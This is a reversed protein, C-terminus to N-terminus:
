DIKGDDHLIQDTYGPWWNDPVKMSLGKLSKAWEIDIAMTTVMTNNSEKTETTNNQQKFLTTKVKSSFNIYFM